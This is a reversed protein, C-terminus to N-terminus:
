GLKRDLEISREPKRINGRASCVNTPLFASTVLVNGDWNTYYSDYGLRDNTYGIIICLYQHMPIHWDKAARLVMGDSYANFVKTLVNVYAM